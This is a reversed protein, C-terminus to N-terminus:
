MRGSPRRQDNAGPRGITTSRSDHSSRRSNGATAASMAAAFGDTSDGQVTCGQEYVLDSNPEQQFAEYM